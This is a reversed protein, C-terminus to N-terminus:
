FFMFFSNFFAGAAVPFKLFLSFVNKLCHKFPTKFAKAGEFGGFIPHGGPGGKSSHGGPGMKPPNAPALAKLVGKLCRKFPTKEGKKINETAAPANKSRKKM